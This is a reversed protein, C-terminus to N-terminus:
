SITLILNVAGIQVVMPSFTAKLLLISFLKLSIPHPSILAPFFSAQDLYKIRNLYRMM